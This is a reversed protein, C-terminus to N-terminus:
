FARRIARLCPLISRDRPRRATEAHQGDEHKANVPNRLSRKTVATVKLLAEIATVEGQTVKTFVRASKGCQPEKPKQLNTFHLMSRSNLQGQNDKQYGARKQGTRPVGVDAFLFIKLATLAIVLFSLVLFRRDLEGVRGLYVRIEGFSVVLERLGGQLCLVPVGSVLLQISRNLQLRVIQQGVEVQGVQKDDPALVLLRLFVYIDNQRFVRAVCLGVRNLGIQFVPLAVQIASQLLHLLGDFESGSTPIGM